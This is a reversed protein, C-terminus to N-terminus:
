RLVPTLRAGPTRSVYCAYEAVVIDMNFENHYAEVQNKFSEMDLAYVHIVLYDPAYACGDLGGPCIYDFFGHLWNKDWAVGPSWLKVDSKQGKLTTVLTKWSIHALLTLCESTVPSTSLFLCQYVLPRSCTQPDTSNQARGIEFQGPENYGMVESWGKQLPDNNFLMATDYQMPVFEANIYLEEDDYTFLTPSYNKNWNWWWSLSSDDGFFQTVPKASREQQPWSIGAKGSSRKTLNAPAALATGIFLLLVLM